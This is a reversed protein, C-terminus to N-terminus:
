LYNFESPKILEMVEDFSYTKLITYIGIKDKMM